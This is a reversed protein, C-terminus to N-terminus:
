PPDETAIKFMFFFFTSLIILKSASTAVTTRVVIALDSFYTCKFITEKNLEM